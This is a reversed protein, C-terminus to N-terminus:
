RLQQLRTAFAPGAEFGTTRLERKEQGDSGYLLLTPLGLIQQQSLFQNADGDIRTLDVRLAVMRALEAQVAPHPFTQQEFERCAVCWDAYLDVLVPRQQAQAAALEAPLQALSITKFHHGPQQQAAVPQSHLQWQYHVIAALLLTALLKIALLLPSFRRGWPWWLDVLAALGLALWLWRSLESALLRDTFLLAAALLLYGFARKVGNMWGGGRMLLKGGSAGIAILPLGMGLALLYLASAGLLLDGSQAVYILAGTLPATTCPTAVLGALIGLLLASRYRGPHLQQSGHQLKSQWSSPLQLTFLGFMSAALLVFLVVVAGLLLPHQLAAQLQLGFYAVLLGLAAYTLAMGQVYIASLLLGRRWNLQGGGALVASLIPLLPLVCPTFALLLGAGLFLLLAWLRNNSGLLQSFDTLPNDAANAAPPASVSTAAPTAEAGASPSASLPQLAVVETVPPYCLGAAACGQYTITVTGGAPVEQLPLQLGLPQRYILTLGFEADDYTEGEPMVLAGLRVGPGPEIQLRDRYLYYNDATAWNLQLLNGQQRSSFPFAQEVPLFPDNSPLLAASAASFLLLLLAILRM